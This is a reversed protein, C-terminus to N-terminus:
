SKDVPERSLLRGRDRVLESRQRGLQAQVRNGVRFAELGLHMVLQAADGSPQQDEVVSVAHVVQPRPERATGAGPIGPCTITVV